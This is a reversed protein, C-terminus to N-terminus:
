EHGPSRERWNHNKQVSKNEVELKTHVSPRACGTIHVILVAARNIYPCFLVHYSSCWCSGIIRHFSSSHLHITFVCPLIVRYTSSSSAKVLWSTLLLFPEVVDESGTTVAVLVARVTLRELTQYFRRRVDYYGITCVRVRVDAVM